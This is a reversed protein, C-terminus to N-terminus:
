RSAWQTVLEVAEADLLGLIGNARQTSPDILL